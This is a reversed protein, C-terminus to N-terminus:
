KLSKLWPMAAEHITTYDHASNSLIILTVKQDPFYEIGGGFGRAPLGGASEFNGLWKYRLGNAKPILEGWAYGVRMPHDESFPDTSPTLMEKTLQPSLLKGNMVAQQFIFLDDATSYLSGFGYYNSADVFQGKTNASAYGEARNKLVRMTDDVGTNAMGLKDFINDKVFQAYPLGSAKEIVKGLLVYSSPWYSWRTSGPEATVPLSKIIDILQNPTHRLNLEAMMKPQSM